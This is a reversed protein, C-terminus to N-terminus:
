SGREQDGALAIAREGAIRRELTMWLDPVEIAPQPRAYLFGQIEDCGWHEARRLQEPTEVGEAVVKLRLEHAMAVMAAAIVRNDEDEGSNKIYSRDIKLVDVPLRRLYVIASDGTGFDDISLRVGLEKLGVLLERIEKRRGLVGRESLELELLGPDIETEELVSRVDELLNGRLLQCHAVNVAMRVQPLGADLWSRLQRCSERLVWTGIPVMLAEEEAVAIFEAPLILGEEPHEWRLLAEFASVKGSAAEVIPQYFLTLDDNELAVRLDRSLAVRRLAAKNLSPEYYHLIGGGLSKAETVALEAHHLLEEADRGDKPYYAAGFSASIYFHEGDIEIADALDTQLREFFPQLHASSSVNSIVLGFEDGGLRALTASVLGTTRAALLESSDFSGMLRKAVLALLADAKERGLSENISGFRDIDIYLVASMAEVPRPAAFTQELIKLFVKRNPLATLQDTEAGSAHQQRIDMVEGAVRELKEKAVELGNATRQAAALLAARHSIIRWDHPRRAVDTAGASLAQKAERLSGAIVLVPPGGASSSQLMSLYARGDRRDSLGAEVVVVSIEEDALIARAKSGSSTVRVEFGLRELWRPAWHRAGRERCVLLATLPGSQEVATELLERILGHDSAGDASADRLLREPKDLLRLMLETLWKKGGLTAHAIPLAIPPGVNRFDM